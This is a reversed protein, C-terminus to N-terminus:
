VTVIADPSDYVAQLRRAKEIEKRKAQLDELRKIARSLSKEAASDARLVINMDEAKPLSAKELKAMEARRSHDQDIFSQYKRFPEPEHLSVDKTDQNNDEAHERQDTEPATEEIPTDGDMIAQLKPYRRIVEQVRGIAEAVNRRQLDDGRITDLQLLSVAANEFRTARAMRRQMNAIREVEFEELPGVPEYYERLSALKRVFDQDNEGYLQTHRDSWMGHKVANRSSREKGADTRPGTSKEANQRNAERKKDSVPPKELPNTNSVNESSTIEMFVGFSRFKSFTPAGDSM